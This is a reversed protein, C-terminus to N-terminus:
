CRETMSNHNSNTISQFKAQSIKSNKPYLVQHKSVKNSLFPEDFFSAQIVSNERAKRGM